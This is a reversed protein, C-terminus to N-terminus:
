EEAPIFYAVEKVDEEPWVGSTELCHFKCANPWCPGHVEGSKLRIMCPKKHYGLEPAFPEWGRPRVYLDLWDPLPFEESNM